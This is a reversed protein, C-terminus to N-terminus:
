ARIRKCRSSGTGAKRIDQLLADVESSRTEVSKKSEKFQRQVDAVEKALRAAEQLVRAVADQPPQVPASIAKSTARGSGSQGGSGASGQHRVTSAQPKAATSPKQPQEPRRSSAKPAQAAAEIRALLEDREGSSPLGRAKCLAQLTGTPLAGYGRPGSQRPPAQKSGFLRSLLQSAPAESSPGTSKRPREPERAARSQTKTSEPLPEREQLPQSKEFGQPALKAAAAKVRWPARATALNRATPPSAEADSVCVVSHVAPSSPAQHGPAEPEQVAGKPAAEERRPTSATTPLSAQSLLPASTAVKSEVASQEDLKSVGCSPRLPHQQVDQGDSYRSFLFSGSGQGGTAEITAEQAKQGSLPAPQMPLPAEYPQQQQKRGFPQQAGHTQLQPQWRGYQEQKAQLHELSGHQVSNSAFESACRLVEQLDLLPADLLLELLPPVAFGEPLCGLRHIADLDLGLALLVAEGCSGEGFGAEAEPAPRLDEVNLAEWPLEMVPDMEGEQHLAFGHLSLVAIGTEGSYWEERSAGRCSFVAPEGSGSLELALGRADALLQEPALGQLRACLGVQRTELCVLAPHVSALLTLAAGPAVRRLARWLLELYVEHLRPDPEFGLLSEALAQMPAMLAAERLLAAESSQRGAPAAAELTAALLEAAARRAKLGAFGGSGGKGSNGSAAARLLLTLVGSMGLLDDAAGAPWVEPMLASCAAASALSLEQPPGRAARGAFAALVKLFGSRAASAAVWLVQATQTCGWAGQEVSESIERAARTMAAAVGEAEGWRSHQCADRFSYALSVVAQGPNAAGPDAACVQLPQLVQEMQM